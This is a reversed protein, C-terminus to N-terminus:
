PQRAFRYGCHRCVRAEARVREACDPCRTHLRFTALRLAYRTARVCMSAGRYALWALAAALAAGFALPPILGLVVAAV